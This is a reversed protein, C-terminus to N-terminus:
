DKTVTLETFGTVPDLARGMRLDKPEGLVVEMTTFVNLDGVVHGGVTSGQHDSLCIHLHTGGQNITGSMGLVEFHKEYRVVKDTTGDPAAAMRLTATTISGCCTMVFAGGPAERAVFEKLCTKVEQGPTLRLVHVRMTSSTM